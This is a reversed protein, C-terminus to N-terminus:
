KGNDACFEKSLVKYTLEGVSPVRYIYLCEMIMVNSDNILIKMIIKIILVKKKIIIIKKKKYNKNIM